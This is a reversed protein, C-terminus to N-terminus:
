LSYYEYLYFWPDINNKPYIKNFYNPYMVYMSAIIQQDCGAFQNNNLYQNLINYYINHMTLILEKEGGFLSGSFGVIEKFYTPYPPTLEKILVIDLKDISINNYKPYFRTSNITVKNRINGIDNWIFKDCRYPNISIAIKLFEFKSNWIIYCEETRGCSQNPDLIYQKKKWDTMKSTNLDTIEMEIYYYKNTNNTLLKELYSKTNKDHFLIINANNISSNFHM